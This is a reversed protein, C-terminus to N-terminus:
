CGGSSVGGIKLHEFVGARCIRRNDCSSRGGGSVLNTRRQRYICKSLILYLTTCILCLQIVILYLQIREFLILHVQVCNITKIKIILANM